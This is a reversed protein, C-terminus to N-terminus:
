EGRGKPRFYRIDTIAGEREGEEKWVAKVRMGIRVKGPDVEGLVHLIGMLPSAGDIEVVAVIIPEKRRSADSNVFAISYTVVTGTDKLKVWRSTPKFCAECYMRPPVLTRGCGDCARGWIEGKRLGRLFRGIAVGSTWGYKLETHYKTHLYKQNRLDDSTIEVGAYKSIKSSM